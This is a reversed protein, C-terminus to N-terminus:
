QFASHHEPPCIKKGPQPSFPLHLANRLYCTVVKADTKYLLFGIGDFLKMLSGTQSLRGEPFLVLKGGNQLFEAMRKVAYPSETEVPFTHKGTMLKRHLWSTQATSSSTVFRWDDDLCVALFLWDLWSTHNPTLLMPGPARLVEENYARFRFCLKLLFRLLTKM